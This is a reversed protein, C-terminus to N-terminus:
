ESSPDGGPGEHGCTNQGPGAFNGVYILREFKELDIEFFEMMYIVM